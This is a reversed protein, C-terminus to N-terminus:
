LVYCWQKKNGCRLYVTCTFVALATMIQRDTEGDTVNCEYAENFPKVSKHM